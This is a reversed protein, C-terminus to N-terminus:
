YVALRSVCPPEVDSQTAPFASALVGLSHGALAEARPLLQWGKAGQSSLPNISRLSSFHPELKAATGSYSCM